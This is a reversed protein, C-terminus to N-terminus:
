PLFRLVQQKLGGGQGFQLVGARKPPDTHCAERLVDKQDASAQRNPRLM